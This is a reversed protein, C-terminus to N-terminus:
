YPTGYTYELTCSKVDVDNGVPANITVFLTEQPLTIIPQSIDYFVGIWEFKSYADLVSYFRQQMSPTEVFLEFASAKVDRNDLMIRKPKFIRGGMNRIETREGRKLEVTGTPPTNMAKGILNAFEDSM